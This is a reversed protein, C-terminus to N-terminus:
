RLYEWTNTNLTSTFFDFIKRQTARITGFERKTVRERNNSRIGPAHTHDEIRERESSRAVMDSNHIDKTRSMLSKHSSPTVKALITLSM